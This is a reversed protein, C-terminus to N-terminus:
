ASGQDRSRRHELWSDLLVLAAGVTIASDALNFAPFSHQQWHFHLFDVVHGHQLRDLLNGLAGALICALGPALVSGRAPVRRLWVTIAVSVAVALATFFWRQWGSADDLFSFAAGTNHARVIDFVPMVYRSEYLRLHTEIYGKSLQDLVILLGSLGLWRWGSATWNEPRPQNM